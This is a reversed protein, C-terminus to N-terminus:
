VVTGNLRNLWVDLIKKNPECSKKGAMIDAESQIYRAPVLDARDHDSLASIAEPTVEIHFQFALIQNRWTFGQNRCGDSEANLIAGPPLEFTDGHWHLVRSQEPLSPILKHASPLWRVPYWGIEKEPNQYVKGGLVDAILQAGLCIGVIKKRAEIAARIFKKERVLWPHNRHEYINMFGGMIVLWDIDDPSPETEGLYWHTTSIEFGKLAAWDAIHCPGEHLVHQFVHLKM